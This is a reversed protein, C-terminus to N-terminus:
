RCNSSLRFSHIPVEQTTSGSLPVDHLIAPPNTMGRLSFFKLFNISNEVIGVSSPSM